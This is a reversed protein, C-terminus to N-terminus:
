SMLGSREIWSAWIYWVLSIWQTGFRGLGGGSIIFGPCFLEDL